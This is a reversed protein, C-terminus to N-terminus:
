CHQGRAQSITDSGAPSAVHSQELHTFILGDVAYTCGSVRTSTYALEALDHSIAQVALISSETGFSDDANRLVDVRRFYRWQEASTDCDEVAQPFLFDDRAREDSYLAQAPQTMQSQLVGTLHAIPHGGDATGICLLIEGHLQAGM